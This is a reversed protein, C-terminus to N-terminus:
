VRVRMTTAHDTNVARVPAAQFKTDIHVTRNRNPAPSAPQKELRVRMNLVQTGSCDRRPAPANTPPHERPPPAAVGTSTRSNTSHCPHRQDNTTSAASPNM